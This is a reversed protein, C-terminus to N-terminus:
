SLFFHWLFFRCVEQSVKWRGSFFFSEFMRHFSFTKNAEEHLVVLLNGTECGPEEDAKNLRKTQKTLTSPQLTCLSGFTPFLIMGWFSSWVFILFVLFMASIKLGLCQDNNSHHSSKTTLSMTWM